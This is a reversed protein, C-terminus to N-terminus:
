SGNRKRIVKLALVLILMSVAGLVTWKMLKLSLKDEKEVSVSHNLEPGAIPTKAENPSSLRKNQSIASEVKTDVSVPRSKNPEYTERWGKEYRGDMTPPAVEAYREQKILEENAAWWDRMAALIWPDTHMPDLGKIKAAEARIADPFEPSDRIICGMIEATLPAFGLDSAGHEGYHRPQIPFDDTELAPALLPLLWPSKSEVFTRRLSTSAGEVEMYKSILRSITEDDRLRILLSWEFRKGLERIVEEKKVPPLDRNTVESIKLNQLRSAQDKAWERSGIEQGKLSIFAFFLLICFIKNM